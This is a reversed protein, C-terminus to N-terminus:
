PSQIKWKAAPLHVSDRKFEVHLINILMESRENNETLLKLGLNYATCGALKKANWPWRESGKM